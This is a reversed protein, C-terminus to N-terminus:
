VDVFHALGGKALQVCWLREKMQALPVEQEMRVLKIPYVLVGLKFTYHRCHPRGCQSSVVWDRRNVYDIVLGSGHDWFM